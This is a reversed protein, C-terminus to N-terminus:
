NSIKPNVTKGTAKEYAERGADTIKEQTSRDMNHGSKKSAFGFAKDVYDDQQGSPNASSGSSSNGKMGDAAKKIFDM